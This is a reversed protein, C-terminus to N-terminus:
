NQNAFGPCNSCTAKVELERQLPHVSPDQQEHTIRIAFDQGPGMKPVKFILFSGGTETLGITNPATIVDSKLHQFTIASISVITITVDIAEASGTNTVVLDGDVETYDVNFAASQYQQKLEELSKQQQYNFVALIISILINSMLLARDLDLWQRRTDNTEPATQQKMTFWNTPFNKVTTHLHGM